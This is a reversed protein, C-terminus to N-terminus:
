VPNEVPLIEGVVGAGVRLQLAVEGVGVGLNLVVVGVVPVVHLVLVVVVALPLRLHLVVREPGLHALLLGLEVMGLFVLPLQVLLKFLGPAQLLFRVLSRLVRLDPRLRGTLVCLASVFLSLVANLGIARDALRVFVPPTTSLNTISNRLDLLLHVVQGAALLLKGLGPCPQLCKNRLPLLLHLLRRSAVLLPNLGHPLGLTLCLRRVRDCRVRLGEPRLLM